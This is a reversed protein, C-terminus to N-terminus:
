TIIPRSYDYRVIYKRIYADAAAPDVSTKTQERFAAVFGGPVHARLLAREFERHNPYENGAVQSKLNRLVEAPLRDTPKVGVSQAMVTHLPKLRGEEAEIKEVGEKTLLYKMPFTYDQEALSRKVTDEDLDCGLPFADYKQGAATGDSKRKVGFEFEWATGAVTRSSNHWSIKTGPPSADWGANFAALQSPEDPTVVAKHIPLKASHQDRLILGGFKENFKAETGLFRKWILLLAIEGYTACDLSWRDLNKFLAGVAEYPPALPTFAANGRVADTRNLGWNESDKRVFEDRIDGFMPGGGQEIKQQLETLVALVDARWKAERGQPSLTGNVVHSAGRPNASGETPAVKEASMGENYMKMASEFDKGSLEDDLEDKLNLETPYSEHYLADVEKMIGQEKATKLAALVGEEDTGGLGLFGPDNFAQYLKEVIARANAM